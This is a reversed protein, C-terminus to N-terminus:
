RGPRAGAGVANRQRQNHAVLFLHMALIPSPASASRGPDTPRITVDHRNEAKSAMASKGATVWACVGVAVAIGRVTLIAGIAVVIGDGPAVAWIPTAISLAFPKSPYVIQTVYSLGAATSAVFTRLAPVSLLPQTKKGYKGVGAGM